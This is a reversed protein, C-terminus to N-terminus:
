DSALFPSQPDNGSQEPQREDSASQPLMGKDRDGGTMVADHKIAETYSRHSRLGPSFPKIYDGGPVLENGVLGSELRPSYVDRNRTEFPQFHPDRYRQTVTRIHVAQPVQVLIQTWVIELAEDQGLQVYVQPAYEAPATRLLNIRTVLPEKTFHGAHGHEAPERPPGFAARTRIDRWAGLRIDQELLQADKIDLPGLRDGIRHVLLLPM